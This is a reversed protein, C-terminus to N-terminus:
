RIGRGALGAGQISPLFFTATFSIRPGLDSFFSRPSDDFWSCDSCPAAKKGSGAPGQGCSSSCSSLM